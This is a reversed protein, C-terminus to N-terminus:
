YERPCMLVGNSTWLELEHCPFDTHPNWQEVLVPTDTDLRLSLLADAHGIESGFDRNFRRRYGAARRESPAEQTPLNFVDLRWIALRNIADWDKRRRLSGQYSAIADILWYAKGAEAILVVGDTSLLDGLSARHLHESGNICGALIEQIQEQRLKQTTETDASM